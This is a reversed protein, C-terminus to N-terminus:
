YAILIRYRSVNSAGIWSTGRCQALAGLLFGTSHHNDPESGVQVAVCTISLLIQVM